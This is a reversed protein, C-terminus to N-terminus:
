TREVTAFTPDHQGSVVRPAVYGDVVNLIHTFVHDIRGIKRSDMEPFIDDVIERVDEYMLNFDGMLIVPITPESDSVDKVGDVTINTGYVANNFRTHISWVRIYGRPTDLIVSINTRTQSGAPIEVHEQSSAVIPYVSFIANEYEQYINHPYRYIHWASFHDEVADIEQGAGAFRLEQIAAVEVDNAVFQNYIQEIRADADGVGEYGINYTVVKMTGASAAPVVPEGSGEVLPLFITYTPV